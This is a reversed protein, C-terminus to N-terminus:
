GRPRELRLEIKRLLKIAVEETISIGEIRFSAIMSRMIEERLAKNRTPKKADPM